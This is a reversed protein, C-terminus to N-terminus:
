NPRGQAIWSEVLQIQEPALAPLGLPMGRLGPVEEGALEQQRALLVAVLRPTGDKLPLFISRRRGKDDLSGSAVDSYTALNLGRPAFGFGGSNGPGGDGMAYEPTAHCHWCTRRFVRENVEAFRVARGLVPLRAPLTKKGAIATPSISIKSIYEALARAQTEDLPIRPMRTDTKLETPALLWHVLAAPQFRDRTYRLDPALMIGEALEAPPMAIPLPSAVLEPVGTFRHCTGCGKSDLLQRGLKMDGPPLKTALIENPVLAKAIARAQGPTLALRPMMAILGPRLEHPKLLFAEIFSRRLRTGAGLLSPTTPLSVISQQWRRLTDAEVRFRGRLIQQHCRVCDKELPVEPLLTGAHCRNCEFRQMLRAGDEELAAASSPWAQLALAVALALRAAIV